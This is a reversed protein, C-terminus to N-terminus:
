YLYTKKVVDYLRYKDYDTGKFLNGRHKKLMDFSQKATEEDDFQKHKVWEDTPNVRLEIKFKKETKM